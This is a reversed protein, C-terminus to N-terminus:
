VFCICDMNFFECKKSVCVVKYKRAPEQEEFHSPSSDRIKRSCWACIECISCLVYVIRARFM